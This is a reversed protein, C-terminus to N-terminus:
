TSLGADSFIPSTLEAHRASIHTNQIGSLLEQPAGRSRKARPSRRRSRAALEDTQGAQAEVVVAVQSETRARVENSRANRQSEHMVYRDFADNGEPEMPHSVSM